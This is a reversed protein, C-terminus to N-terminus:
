RTSCALSRRTAMTVELRRSWWKTLAGLLEGECVRGVSYLKVSLAEVVAIKVPRSAPECARQHPPREPWRENHVRYEDGRSTSVGDMPGAYAATDPYYVRRPATVALGGPLGRRPPYWSIFSYPFTFVQANSLRLRLKSPGPEFTGDNPAQVYITKGDSSRGFVPYPEPFDAPSVLEAQDPYVVEPPATLGIHAAGGPGALQLDLQPPAAVEAGGVEECLQARAAQHQRHAALLLLYQTRRLHAWRWEGILRGHGQLGM